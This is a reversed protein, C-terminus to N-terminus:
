SSSRERQAGPERKLSAASLRARKEPGSRDPGGKIKERDEGVMEDGDGKPSKGHSFGGRSMIADGLQDARLANEKEHFARRKEGHAAEGGPGDSKELAVLGGKPVEVNERIVGNALADFRERVPGGDRLEIDIALEDAASVNERLHVGRALQGGKEGGRGSPRFHEPGKERLM